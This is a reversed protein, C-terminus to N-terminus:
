EHGNVAIGSERVTVVDGAVAAITKLLAESGNDCDGYGIYGRAVGWAALSVPLCVLVTAGRQPEGPTMFYLGRPMSPTTNLRLTPHKEGFTIAALATIAVLTALLAKM